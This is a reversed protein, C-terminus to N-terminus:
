PRGLYVMEHLTKANLAVTEADGAAAAVDMVQALGRKADLFADIPTAGGFIGRWLLLEFGTRGVFPGNVGIGTSYSLHTDAIFARTGSKLYRLALSNDANKSTPEQITDLTWAGYCAGVNVIAGPSGAYPVTIGPADGGVQVAWEKSIDGPDTPRWLNTDGSWTDTQVGIGHLLIYVFRATAANTAPLDDPSAPPVFETHVAAWDDITEIVAGAQNRRKQNVLAFGGGPPTTVTGLQTLLLQADESSPIRAVGVDPVGWQDGDLDGYPDDSPLWESPLEWDILSAAEEAAMPNPLELYPVVDHNGVILLYRQGDARLRARVGEVIDVVTSTTLTDLDLVTGVAGAAALVADADAGLRTRLTSSRTVVLVSAPDAYPVPGLGTPLGPVGPLGPTGPAPSGGPVAPSAAPSGSPAGTVNTAPPASAGPALTGTPAQIAPIQSPDVVQFDAVEDPVGNYDLQASYRGAALGGPPQFIFVFGANREVVVMRAQEGIFRDDQYLRIRLETGAPAYDWGLLILALPQGVPFLDGENVPTGTRDDIDAAFQLHYLIADGVSTPQEPLADAALARGPGALAQGPVALALVILLALVRGPGRASGTM